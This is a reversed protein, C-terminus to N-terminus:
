RVPQYGNAIKEVINDFGSLCVNYNEGMMM